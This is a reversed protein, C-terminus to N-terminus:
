KPPKGIDSPAAQEANPTEMVALQRRMKDLTIDLLALTKRDLEQKDKKGADLSAEALMSAVLPDPLFGVSRLVKLRDNGSLPEIMDIYARMTAVLNDTRYLSDVLEKVLEHNNVRLNCILSGSPAHYLITEGEELRCGLATLAPALDVSKGDLKTLQEIAGVKLLRDPLGDIRSVKTTLSPNSFAIGLSACWTLIAIPYRSM